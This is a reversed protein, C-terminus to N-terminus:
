PPAVLPLRLESCRLSGRDEVMRKRVQKNSNRADTLDDTPTKTSSSTRRVIEDAREMAGPLSDKVAM